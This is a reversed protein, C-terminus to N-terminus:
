KAIINEEKTENDLFVWKDIQSQYMVYRYIAPQGEADESEFTAYEVKMSVQGIQMCKQSIEKIKDPIQSLKMFDKHKVQLGNIIKTTFVKPKFTIDGVNTVFRIKKVEDISMNATEVEVATIVVEKDKVYSRNKETEM